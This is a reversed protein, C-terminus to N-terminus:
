RYIDKHHGVKLITITNGAADFIARYEGIRFRWEGVSADTLHTAFRFPDRQAVYFRLKALIGRQIEADLKKLERFAAPTFIFEM